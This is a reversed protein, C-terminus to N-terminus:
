RDRALADSMAVGVAAFIAVTIVALLLSIVRLVDKYSEIQTSPFTLITLVVITASMVAGIILFVCVHGNSLTVCM